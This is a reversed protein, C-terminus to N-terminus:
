RVQGPGRRDRTKKTLARPKGVAEATQITATSRRLQDPYRLRDVASRRHVAEPTLGGHASHPRVQNYDRRWCAIVTRAEALSAFVEENLCEDRFRSNFSEVFANQVPKGPAIYHWAVRSEEAWALIANSTLETGNDSVITTPKGRLAIIRNLERAVRVGSLSTDPVLALCERTCDDVVALICFRQGSTMQDSLFDLSWRDNATQPVRLPARAGLARKRGGRNRVTLREERYLRFLRKHNM